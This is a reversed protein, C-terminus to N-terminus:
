YKIETLSEFACPKIGLDDFRKRYNLLMLGYVDPLRVNWDSLISRKALSELKNIRAQKGSPKGAALDFLSKELNALEVALRLQHMSNIHEGAYNFDLMKLASEYANSVGDPFLYKARANWYHLKSEHPSNLSNVGLGALMWPNDKADLFFQNVICALEKRQMLLIQRKTQFKGEKIQIGIDQIQSIDHATLMPYQHIIDTPQQNRLMSYEMMLPTWSKKDYIPLLELPLQEVPISHRVSLFELIPSIESAHLVHRAIRALDENTAIKLVSDLEIPEMGHAQGVMKRAISAHKGGNVIKHYESLLGNLEAFSSIGVLVLTERINTVKQKDASFKNTLYIDFDSLVATKKTIEEFTRNTIKHYNRGDADLGDFEGNVLASNVISHAEPSSLKVIRHKRAISSYMTAITSLPLDITCYASKIVKQPNSKNQLIIDELQSRQVQVLVPNIKKM